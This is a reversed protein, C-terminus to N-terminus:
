KDFSFAEELVIRHLQSKSGFHDIYDKRLRDAETKYYIELTEKSTTEYITVQNAGIPASGEIVKFRKASTFYKTDLVDPIHTKDVYEIWDREFKEDIKAWVCYLIRENSM